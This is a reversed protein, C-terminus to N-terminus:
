SPMTAWRHCNIQRSTDFTIIQTTTTTTTPTPTTTTTTTKIKNTGPDTKFVEANLTFWTQMNDYQTKGAKASEFILFCFRVIVWIWYAWNAVQCMKIRCVKDYEQYPQFGAGTSLYSLLKDWWKPPKICGLHNAKPNRFWWRYRSDIECCMVAEQMTKAHQTYCGWLGDPRVALVLVSLQPSSSSRSWAPNKKQPFVVLSIKTYFYATLGNPHWCSICMYYKHIYISRYLYYMNTM